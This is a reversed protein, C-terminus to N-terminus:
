FWDDAEASTTATKAGEKNLGESSSSEGGKRNTWAVAGVVLCLLIVGGIMAGVFTKSIQQPSSQQSQSKAWAPRKPDSLWM